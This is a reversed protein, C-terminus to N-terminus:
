IETLLKPMDKMRSKAAGTVNIKAPAATIIQESVFRITGGCGFVVGSLFDIIRQAEDKPTEELNVIIPNGECILEGLAQADGLKKVCCVYVEDDSPVTDDEGILRYFRNKIDDFM